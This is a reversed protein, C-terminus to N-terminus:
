RTEYQENRKVFSPLVYRLPGEGPPKVGHLYNEGSPFIIMSYKKPKISFNLRSFFLEGDVYDDNVYIIVAYEILPDSHNDVHEILPAGAYQRQITGVGDFNLSDSFEFIKRIKKSINDSIEFPLSLNKDVWHDTIEILGEKLLNDIDSRGYKREALGIVGNMYHTNWDEESSDNIIKNISLCEEEKLFNNILFINEAVESCEYDLNKLSKELDKM